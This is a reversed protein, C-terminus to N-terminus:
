ADPRGNRVDDGAPLGILQRDGRENAVGVVQSQRNMRIGGAGVGQGVPGAVDVRQQLGEVAFGAHVAQEAVMGVVGDADAVCESRLVSKWTRGNLWNTTVANMRDSGAPVRHIPNSRTREVTSRRTGASRQHDFECSPRVSKSTRGVICLECWCSTSLTGM